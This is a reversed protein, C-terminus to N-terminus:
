AFLLARFRGLDRDLIAKILYKAKLIPAMGIKVPHHKALWRRQSQLHWVYRRTTMGASSTGATHLVLSDPAAALTYGAARLRTGLDADEWYMFFAEDFLGVDRLADTSLLMSAATLWCCRHDAIDAPAYILYSILTLPHMWSGYHGAAPHQPDVLRSGVAGVRPTREAVAVLASLCNAVPEADNNVLWCYDYGAAIASRLAVNCGGGFGLNEDNAILTVSGGMKRIRAELWAASGDDSGNDIVYVHAPALTQVQVSRIANLTMTPARWNVIVVAVRADPM